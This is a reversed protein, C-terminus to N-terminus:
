NTTKRLHVGKRLKFYIKNIEIFATNVVSSTQDLRIRKIYKAICMCLIFWCSYLSM